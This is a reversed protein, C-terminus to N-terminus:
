GAMASPLTAFDPSPAIDGDTSYVSEFCLLKPREPATQELLRPPDSPRFIHQDARGNRISAIM